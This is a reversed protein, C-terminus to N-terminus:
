LLTIKTEDMSIFPPQPPPFLEGILDLIWAAREHGSQKLGALCSWFEGWKNATTVCDQTIEVIECM